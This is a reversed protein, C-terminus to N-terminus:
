SQKDIGALIAEIHDRYKERVREPEVIWMRDDFQALWGFFTKSVRLQVSISLTDDDVARVKTNEGFQDYVPGLLDRKFQLTVKTLDGPQMKFTQRTYEKVIKAMAAAEESQESDPVVEVQFMRDVRFNTTTNPYKENYTILYYNDDSIILAIPDVTYHKRDGNQRLAFARKRNEDLYFYFFSIKRKKELATEIADVNYLIGENSHKHANFDKMSRKMLERRHSGGLSAIKDILTKTKNETIFNAGHVADMMIKLEATEFGKDPMYYYREHNRMFSEVEYGLEILTEVGRSVTRVHCPVGQTGLKEALEIRSVPHEMDTENHLYEWLKLLIIKNGNEAM